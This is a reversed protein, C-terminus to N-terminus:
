MLQYEPLSMLYKLIDRLRDNVTNILWTDGPSSIYSTWLETWYYDNSQGLLLIDKKIQDRTEQLLDTRFFLDCLEKVMM